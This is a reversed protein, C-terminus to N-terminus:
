THRVDEKAWRRLSSWIRSLNMMSLWSVMQLYPEGETMGKARLAHFTPVAPQALIDMCTPWYANYTICVLLGRGNVVGGEGEESALM